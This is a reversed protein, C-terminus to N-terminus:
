TVQGGRGTGRGNYGADLWIHHLRPFQTPVPDALLLKVGDRDMIGAPHVSVALVLGETDVLLHRKRGKVQKGGADGREGGGSTTKVSQVRSSARVPSKIGAWGCGCGSGYCWISANGPAM